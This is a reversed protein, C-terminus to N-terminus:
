EQAERRALIFCLDSLRNLVMLTQDNIEESRYLTWAVREARRAITRAMHLASSGPTDGPIVFAKLPPLLTDVEDILNELASVHEATIRPAAGISAFDAMLLWLIKQASYIKERVDEKLCTSRALGLVADVEDITGYVEVRLSDKPVREGTFLSTVGKDGTKTYIKM